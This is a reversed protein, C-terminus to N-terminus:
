AAAERKGKPQGDTEDTNTTLGVLGEFVSGAYAVGEREAVEPWQSYVTIGHKKALRASMTLERANAVSDIFLGKAGIWRGMILALCGPAAGTSIIYGPRHRLLLWALQVTVIALRLKTDRNGDAIRHYRRGPAGAATKLLPSAYITRDDPLSSSLRLLQHWHGGGSAIALITQRQTM